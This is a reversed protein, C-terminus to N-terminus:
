KPKFIKFLIEFFTRYSKTLGTAEEPVGKILSYCVKSVIIEVDDSTSPDGLTRVLEAVPPCRFDTFRSMLPKFFTVNYLGNLFYLVNVLCPIGM